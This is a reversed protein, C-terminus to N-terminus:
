LWATVPGDSSNCDIIRLWRTSPRATQARISFCKRVWKRRSGPGKPRQGLQVSIRALTEELSPEQMGVTGASTGAALPWIHTLWVHIHADNIGPIVTRGGLNIRRTAAGALALVESNGGVAVIREGRVAVAEAWPRAPDSTFIKGGHLISEPPAQASALLTASLVLWGIKFKM